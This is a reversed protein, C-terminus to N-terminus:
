GASPLALQRSNDEPRWMIVYTSMCEEEIERERERLVFVHLLFSSSLVWVGVSKM